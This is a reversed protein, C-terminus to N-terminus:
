QQVPVEEKHADAKEEEEEKEAEPSKIDSEESEKSTVPGAADASDPHFTLSENYILRCIMQKDFYPNKHKDSEKQMKAEWSWDFVNTCKPPDDFKRLNEFYPHNIAEEVTIRKDPNFALLQKLL